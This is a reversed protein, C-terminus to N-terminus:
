GMRVPELAAPRKWEPVIVAPYPDPVRPEHSAIVEFRGDPRTRGIYSPHDTHHDPHLTVPWGEPNGDFTTGVLAERLADPTLERARRAALALLWVANYAGVQAVHTVAEPGFRAAIAAVYRENAPNPLTRFYTGTMFHGAAHEAGMAQVDIETTVTAAIPLRDAIHGAARFQRYFAPVSDTGVLNCLVVDPRTAGIEEVIPGLDTTGLPVYRDGVVRAGARRALARIIASATRPYVYDSGVVYLRRGLHEFIWDVYDLLFQNPVAGAYFTREDAELGEYYTSYVLLSGGRHIAPQMSVRSASTYGGVCAVVGRAVLSHVRAAVVACNSAYDESVAELPRGGIGGAANVEEVALLAGQEVSRETPALHGTHSYLLGIRVADAQEREERM